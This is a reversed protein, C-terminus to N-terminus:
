PRTRRRTRRSSTSSSRCTALPPHKILHQPPAPIRVTPPSLMLCQPVRPVPLAPRVRGMLRISLLKGPPHAGILWGCVLFCTPENFTAWLKIRQGFERACLTCFNIFAPLNEAKEFGGLNDWWDPHVFHHLTANPEM